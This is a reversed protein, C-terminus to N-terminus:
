GISSREACFAALARSVEDSRVLGWHDLGPFHMQECSYHRAIDRGREDTFEDGFVVLTSPDLHPISIGRKRESRAASSEPRASVGDPFRGYTEEPDFSGVDVEVSADSGQTEAPPSPELLVLAAPPALQAAMAAVLGGMSWGCLAVPRESGALVEAIKGAYDGMSATAVDLGEQLDPAVLTVGEFASRWADFIWPGSGAGHALVVTGTSM